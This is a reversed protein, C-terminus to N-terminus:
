QVTEPSYLSLCGQTCADWGKDITDTVEEMMGVRVRHTGKQWTLTDYNDRYSRQQRNQPGNDTTGLYAPHVFRCYQHDFASWVGVCGGTCYSTNNLRRQEHWRPLHRACREGPERTFTTTLGM